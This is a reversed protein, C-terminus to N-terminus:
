PFCGRCQPVTLNGKKKGASKECLFHHCINLRYVVPLYPSHFFHAAHLYQRHNTSIPCLRESTLVIAVRLPAVSNWFLTLTQTTASKPRSPRSPLTAFCRTCVVRAACSRRSQDDAKGCLMQASVRSFEFEKNKDIKKTWFLVLIRFYWHFRYRYIPCCDIYISIEFSSIHFRNIVIYWSLSLMDFSIDIYWFFEYFFTLFLFM